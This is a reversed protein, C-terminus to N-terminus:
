RIVLTAWGQKRWGYASPCTNHSWYEDCGDIQPMKGFSRTFFRYQSNWMFLQHKFFFLQSLQKKLFCLFSFIAWSNNLPFFPSSFIGSSLYCFHLLLHKLLWLCSFILPSSYQKCIFEERGLLYFEFFMFFFFFSPALFLLCLFCCRRQGFLICVCSSFGAARKWRTCCLKTKVTHSFCLWLAYWQEAHLV